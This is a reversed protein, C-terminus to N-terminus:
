KIVLSIHKTQLETIGLAEQPLWKDESFLQDIKEELYEPLWGTIYKHQKGKLIPRQIGNKLLWVYLNIAPLIPQLGKEIRAKNVRAPISIGKPDIDGFYHIVSANLPEVIGEIRDSELTSFAEGAGYGIGSYHRSIENWKTFSEFTHHNEVILFPKNPCPKSPQKYPMPWGVDYCGLDELSLNGSLIKGKNSLSDLRKEDNFIKLSRERRPILFEFKGKNGNQKLYESILFAAEKQKINLNDIFSALKPHWDYDTPIIRTASKTVKITVWSPLNPNGVRWGSGSTSPLSIKEGNALYDIINRLHQSQESRNKYEPFAQLHAGIIKEFDKKKGKGMSLFSMFIKAEKM